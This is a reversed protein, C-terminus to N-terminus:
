WSRMRKANMSVCLSDMARPMVLSTIYGCRSSAVRIRSSAVRITVLIQITTHMRTVHARAHTRTDTRTRAHTHTHTHQLHRRAHTLYLLPKRMVHHPVDEPEIAVFVAHKLLLLPQLGSSVGVRALHTSGDGIGFVSWWAATVVHNLKPPQAKNLDYQIRFRGGFDPVPHKTGTCLPATFFQEATGKVRWEAHDLYGSGDGVM